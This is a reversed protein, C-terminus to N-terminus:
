AYEKRATEEAHLRQKYELMEEQTDFIRQSAMDVVLTDSLLDHISTRYKTGILLGIQLAFLLGITITGIIGMYGFMIMIFMAIPFITEIAYLGFVTRVFLVFSSAKVCNTRMVALGFIKKGLTQGNKFFLPVIFHVTVISLLTSVSVLVLSLYFFKQYAGMIEKDENIAKNLADKAELFNAKEEDTLKEYEEETVDFDVGYITEYETEYNDYATSLKDSIKNYGFTLSLLAAIGVTLMATIIFDFLWASIRKWFNAKQINLSM